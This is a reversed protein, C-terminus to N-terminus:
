QELFPQKKPTLLINPLHLSLHTVTKQGVINNQHPAGNLKFQKPNKTVLPSHLSTAASHWWEASDKHSRM